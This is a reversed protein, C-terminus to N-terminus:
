RMHYFYNEMGYPVVRLPFLESGRPCTRKKLLIEWKLFPRLQLSDNSTGTTERQHVYSKEANKSRWQYRLDLTSLGCIGM